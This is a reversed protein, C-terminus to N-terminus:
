PKRAILFLNNAPMEIVHVMELWCEEILDIIDFDDKYGIQPDQDRLTAHFESDGDSTLEGGRMFPGYIALTGSHNLVKAAGRIFSHVTADPVLHLLNSLFIGDYGTVNNSWDTRSIDLSLASNLNELNTAEQYANISAIREPDIESPQWTWDARQTAFHIGHQGTGSAIELVRANQPFVENLVEFIPAKNREAYPAFMRKDSGHEAAEPLTLHNTMM